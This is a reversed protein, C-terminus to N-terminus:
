QALRLYVSGIPKSIELETLKGDTYRYYSTAGNVVSVYEHKSVKELSFFTGLRESFINSFVQPEQFYLMISTYNINRRIKVKQEDITADYGDGNKVFITSQKKQENQYSCFSNYMVGDKFVSTSYIESKKNIMLVKAETNNSLRYEIFGDPRTTKEVITAGIKKGLLYVDFNIRQTTQASAFHTFLVFLFVFRNEMRLKKSKRGQQLFFFM